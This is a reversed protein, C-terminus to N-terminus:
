ILFAAESRERPWKPWTVAPRARRLVTQSKPTSQLCSRDPLLRQQRTIVCGRLTAIMGFGHILLSVAILGIGWIVEEMRTVYDIQEVLIDM